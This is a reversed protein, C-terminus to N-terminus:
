VDSITRIEVNVEEHTKNTNKDLTKRKNITNRNNRKYSIM